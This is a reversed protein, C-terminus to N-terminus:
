KVRRKKFWDVTIRLGEDFNYEANWNLYLNAKKSDLSIEFVEGQRPPKYVPEKKYNIMKALNQFLTNVSLTEGTGINFIPLVDDKGSYTLALLNAKAVDTVFVFDRKQEGSGFIFCEKNELMRETFIAIVGAEGFPDQRPGYVNAYRLIVYNFNYANAYIRLYHEAAEKNVGYPSLPLVPHNEDAPLYTPEGYLAGGTSAFIFKKVSFKSALELLNLTGDINIDIDTKPNEMSYVVSIQAAHHNIVEPKFTKFVRKLSNYDRIDVEEFEVDKNLNERRGSSLNDVVLVKHGEKVYHDVVHSGIFGAGGSVLIRM